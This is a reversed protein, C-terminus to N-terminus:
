LVYNSLDYITGNKTQAFTTLECVGTVNNCANGRYFKVVNSIENITNYSAYSNNNAIENVFSYCIDGNELLFIIVNQEADNFIASYVDVVNSVFDLTYEQTSDNDYFYKVIKLESKTNGYEITFYSDGTGAYTGLTLEYNKLDNTEVYKEDFGLTKNGLSGGAIVVSSSDEERSNKDIKTFRESIENSIAYGGIFCLVAVVAIFSTVLFSQTDKNKKKEM